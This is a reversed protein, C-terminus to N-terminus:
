DSDDRGDVLCIHDVKCQKLFDIECPLENARKSRKKHQSDLHRRLKRTTDFTKDQNLCKDEGHLYQCCQSSLPSDVHTPSLCKVNILIILWNM